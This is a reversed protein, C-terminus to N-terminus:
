GSTRRSRRLLLWLLYPAGVMATLLGVPLEKPALVVQAALDAGVVLLAGVTASAGLPPRSGGCLRLAIQPVVFAVFEIPGAAAQPTCTAAACISEVGSDAVAESGADEAEEAGDSSGYM